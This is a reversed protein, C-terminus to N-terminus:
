TRRRAELRCDIGIDDRVALAGFAVSFPKLGLDAHRLRVRAHVRLRDGAFEVAIPVTVVHQGGRLGIRVRADYNVPGGRLSDATLSLVSQRAADLVSTGLMNRRTGDRDKAPVPAAFDAGAAARAEPDDVVLSDLPLELTFGSAERPERLKVVGTLAASSILHNHGLQQMPGDRYIRVELSSEVVEWAEFPLEAAKTAPLPAVPPQQVPAACGAALVVLSLLFKRM